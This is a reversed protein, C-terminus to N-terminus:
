PERLVPQYLKLRARIAQEIWERRKGVGAVEDVADWLEKPLELTTKRYREPRQKPRGRRKAPATTSM